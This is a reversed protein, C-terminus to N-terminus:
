SCFTITQVFVLKIDYPPDLEEGTPARRPTKRRCLRDVGNGWPLRRRHIDSRRIKMLMVTRHQLKRRRSVVHCQEVRESSLARGGGATTSRYIRGARRAAAFGGRAFPPVSM